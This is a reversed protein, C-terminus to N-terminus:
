IQKIGVFQALQVVIDLEQQGAPFPALCAAAFILPLSRAWDAWNTWRPRYNTWRVGRLHRNKELRFMQRVGAALAPPAGDHAALVWARRWCIAAFRSAATKKGYRTSLPKKVACLGGM